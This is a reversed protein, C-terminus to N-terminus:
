RLFDLRHKEQLAACISTDELVSNLSSRAESGAESKPQFFARLEEAKKKTCNGSARWVIWPHEANPLLSILNDYVSLVWDQRTAALRRNRGYERLLFRRDSKSTQPNLIFEQMRKIGEPNNSQALGAMFANRLSTNYGEGLKQILHEAFPLGIEDAAAVLGQWLLDPHLASYNMWGWRDFAMYDKGAEALAKKIKRYNADVSLFWFLEGREKAILPSADSKQFAEPSIEFKALREKFAIRIQSNLKELQQLDTALRQAFRFHNGATRAVEWKDAKAIVTAYQIFEKLSLSGQQFASNLSESIALQESDKFLPFREMLDEWQGKKLEFLAYAAGGANPLLWTPCQNLPLFISQVKKTETIFCHENQDNAGMGYAICLPIQWQQERNGPSGLPLYRGQSLEMKVPQEAECSLDFGILPIGPQELFSKLAGILEPKNAWMAISSILDETSAVGHPYQKIFSSIAKRFKEEGLFREFMSIVAGGKSYSISDFALRIDATSNVRRRIKKVVSLRDTGIAWGASGMTSYDDFEQPRWNHITKSAMWTAFSENLWLDDWWKPTVYNGFWSHALEHAHISAFGRIQYISPPDPLLAITGRYFIAGANEMGGPGFTHAAVIDLKAYPYPVGFWNELYEFMERTNELAFTLKDGQGKPAIGRMPIPRKRLNTSPLPDDTVVDFEGVAIAILYTPLPKTVQFVTRTTGDDKTTVEIEPGNSIAVDKSLHNISIQYPTKFGPEDFSPFVTRANVSQMQTYAYNRDEDSSLYLGRLSESYKATYRIHLKLAGAPITEDTSLTAISHNERRTFVANIHRGNPLEIEALNVGLGKSHLAIERTPVKQFVHIIARGAFGQQDTFIDFDLNYYTPVTEQSLRFQTQAKSITAFCLIAFIAGILVKPTNFRYRM